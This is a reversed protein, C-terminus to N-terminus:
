RTYHLIWFRGTYSVSREVAPCRSLVSNVKLEPVQSTIAGIANSGTILM